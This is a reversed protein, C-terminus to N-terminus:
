KNACPKKSRQHSKFGSLNKFTTNCTTCVHSKKESNPLGSDRESAGRPTTGTRSTASAGTSDGDITLNNSLLLHLNSPQTFVQREFLAGQSSEEQSPQEGGDHVLSRDLIHTPQSQDNPPPTYSRITSVPLDKDSVEEPHVRSSEMLPRSPGKPILNQSGEGEESRAGDSTQSYIGSHIADVDCGCAKAM